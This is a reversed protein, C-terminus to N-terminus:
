RRSTTTVSTFRASTTNAIAWVRRGEGCVDRLDQSTARQFDDIRLATRALMLTMGAPVDACPSRYGLGHQETQDGLLTTRGHILADSSAEPTLRATGRPRLVGVHDQLSLCCSASVIFFSSPWSCVILGYGCLM